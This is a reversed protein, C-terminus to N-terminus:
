IHVQVCAEMSGVKLEPSRQVFQFMCLIHYELMQSLITANVTKARTGHYQNTHKTTMTVLSVSSGKGADWTEDASMLCNYYSQIACAHHKSTEFSPTISHLPRTHARPRNSVRYRAPTRSMEVTVWSAWCLTLVQFNLDSNGSWKYRYWITFKWNDM